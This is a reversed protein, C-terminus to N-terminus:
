PASKLQKRATELNTRAEAYDPRLEVARAFNEEAERLKGQYAFAVGLSNLAAPFDPRFRIAEQFAKAAVFPRGAKLDMDGIYYYAEASDPRIRLVSEYALRAEDLRNQRNLLNGLQEFTPADYPLLRAQLQLQEIAADDDHRAVLLDIYERSGAGIVDVIPLQHEIRLSQLVGVAMGLALVGAAIALVSRHSWAANGL